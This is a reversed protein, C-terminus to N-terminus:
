QGVTGSYTRKLSVKYSCTNTVGAASASAKARFGSSETVTLKGKGNVNASFNYKLPTISANGSALTRSYSEGFRKLYSMSGPDDFDIDLKGGKQKWDGSYQGFALSDNSWAFTGDENFTITANLGSRAASFPMKRSGGYKCSVEVSGGFKGTINYSKGAVSLVKAEATGGALIMVMLSFGIRKKQM